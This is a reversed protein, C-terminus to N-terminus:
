KRSTPRAQSSLPSPPPGRPRLPLDPRAPQDDAPPPPPRGTLDAQRVPFEQGTGSKASPGTGPSQDPSPHRQRLSIAPSPEASRRTRPPQDQRAPQPLDPQGPPHRRRPRHRPRLRQRLQPYFGVALEALQLHREALYDIVEEARSTAALRFACRPDAPLARPDRPAHIGSTRSIWTRLRQGAREVVLRQDIQSPLM